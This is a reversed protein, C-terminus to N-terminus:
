AAAHKLTKIGASVFEIDGNQFIEFGTQDPKSPVNIYRVIRTNMVDMVKVASASVFAGSVKGAAIAELYDCVVVPKGHIKAVFQGTPDVDLLPRNNDDVLGRLARYLSDNVVFGADDRYAASLSHEWDLLELYTIGSTTATTKGPTLAIAKVAAAKERTKEIRQSLLPLAYSQMDFDVANVQTNSLWLQKSSHLTPDLTVGTITPDLETGSSADQAQAQGENATDDSVPLSISACIQREIVPLGFAGLLKRWANSLRRVEVPPLVQKPLMVGSDTATTVVFLDRSQQGTRAYLNLAAAYKEANFTVKGNQEADFQQKGAPLEPTVADGNALAYSAHKTLADIQAKIADMRAYRADNSTKEEGTLDRKETAAKTLIQGAATHLSAFEERLAKIM